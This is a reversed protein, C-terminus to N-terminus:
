EYKKRLKRITDSIHELRERLERMDNDPKPAVLEDRIERWHKPCAIIEVNANKWRIFAGRVPEKECAECSM